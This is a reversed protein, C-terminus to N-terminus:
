HSATRSDAQKAFVRRLQEPIIRAYVLQAIPAVRQPARCRM